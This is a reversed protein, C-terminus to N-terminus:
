LEPQFHGVSACDGPEACVATFSHMQLRVMFPLSLISVRVHDGKPVAFLSFIDRQLAVALSHVHVRQESNAAVALVGCHACKHDKKLFPQFDLQPTTALILDSRFSCVALACPSCLVSMQSLSIWLNSFKLSIHGQSFDPCM